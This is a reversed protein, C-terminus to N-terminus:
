CRRCPGTCRLHSKDYRFIGIIRTLPLNGIQRPVKHICNGLDLLEITMKWAPLYTPLCGAYRPMRCQRALDARGDGGLGDQSEWGARNKEVADEM